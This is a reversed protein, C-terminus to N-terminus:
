FCTIIILGDGGRGGAGALATFGAGGGGGGSGYAGAGGQGGQGSVSAGGGAGGTFFMPQRNASNGILNSIYGDSGTGGTTSGSGLAGGQITNIFGSGLISGGVFAAATSTNGGSAGGSVITTITVDAGPFSIAGSTGNVGATATVLGLNNLINGTWATSGTGGTGSGQGFTAAVTGSQMLVNITTTNPQISIYSIAGSTGNSGGIGGAGGIATQIFLTDPIQSAAFFGISYAGSGGGGGGKRATTATGATGGGGGAGSGLCFINIFKANVPKSWIQFDTGGKAYFVQNNIANDPVNFFDNAM